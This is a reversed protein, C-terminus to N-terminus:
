LCVVIQCSPLFLSWGLYIALISHLCFNPLNGHVQSEWCPSVGCHIEHRESLFPAPCCTPWMSLSERMSSSPLIMISSSTIRSNFTIFRWLLLIVSYLILHLPRRTSSVVHFNSAYKTSCGHKSMNYHVVKRPYGDVFNFGGKEKSAKSIVM